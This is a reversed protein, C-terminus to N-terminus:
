LGRRLVQQIRSTQQPQSFRGSNRIWTRFAAPWDLFRSGKAVHYDRFQELYAEPDSVNQTLCWRRLQETIHFDAPYVTKHQRKLPFLSDNKHNKSPESPESPESPLKNTVRQKHYKAYNLVVLATESGERVDSQYGDSASRLAIWGRESMWRIAKQLRELDRRYWRPNHCHYVSMLSQTWWEIKGKLLGENRDSWSLMELWVRLARDGFKDTLEWVEPDSNINQSVPFWRKIPPM